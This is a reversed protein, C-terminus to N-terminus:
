IGGIVIWVKSPNDNNISIEGNKTEGSKLKIEYPLHLIVGRYRINPEVKDLGSVEGINIIEMGSLDVMMGKNLFRDSCFSSAKSWNGESCANCFNIAAERPTIEPYNYQPNIHTYTPLIMNKDSMTPAKQINSNLSPHYGILYIYGIVFIVLVVIVLKKMIEGKQNSKPKMPDIWNGIKQKQQIPTVAPKTYETAEVQSNKKVVAEGTENKFAVKGKLVRLITQKEKNVAIDFDTGIVSLVASPTQIEFREEQSKMMSFIEGLRLTLPYASTQFDLETEESIYIQSGDKWEVLAKSGGPTLLTNGKRLACGPFVELDEGKTGSHMAAKGIVAKIEGVFERSPNWKRDQIKEMVNKTISDFKVKPAKLLQETVRLYQIEKKCKECHEAHGLIKKRVAESLVNDLYGTMQKMSPHFIM